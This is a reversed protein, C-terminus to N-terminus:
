RCVGGGSVKVNSLIHIISRDLFRGLDKADRTFSKLTYNKGDLCALIVEAVLGRWVEEREQYKWPCFWATRVVRADEKKPRQKASENWQGLRGELWRMASTKGTGWDGYIAAAFPTETSPHRLIEFLPGVQRALDFTDAEPKTSKLATDSVITLTPLETVWKPIGGEEPM